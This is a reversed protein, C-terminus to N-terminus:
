DPYSPASGVIDDRGVTLAVWSNVGYAFIRKSASVVESVGSGAAIGTPKGPLGATTGSDPETSNDLSMTWAAVQGGVSADPALGVVRDPDLFAVGTFDVLQLALPRLGDITPENGTVNVRGAYLRGGAGIVAARAGDISLRLSSIPAVARLAASSVTHPPGSLPVWTLARGDKVTFVGTASAGFTPATLSVGRLAVHMAQGQAGLYLEDGSSTHRIGACATGFRSELYYALDYNGAGAPGALRKGTPLSRAAGAEVLNGTAGAPLSGPDYSLWDNKTQTAPVGKARLVQGDEEIRIDHGIGAPVSSLTWVIQASLSQLQQPTLSQLGTLDVVLDGGDLVVNQALGASRPLATDVAPALWASPGALLARVLWTALSNPPSEVYRPDPVLVNRDPSLFYVDIPASYLVNFDGQKVLLGDPPNSIRWQGDVSTVIFTLNKTLQQATYSGEKTVTAIQPISMMVRHVQRGAPSRDDPGYSSRYVTVGTTDNWSSAAAPTLFSRAVTHHPESTASSATLFGDVIQAPTDGPSPGDPVVGVQPPQEQGNVTAVAVTSSTRPVQACSCLLVGLSAAVALWRVGITRATARIIPARM